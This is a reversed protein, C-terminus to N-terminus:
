PESHTKKALSGSPLATGELMLTVPASQPAACTASPSWILPDRGERNEGKEGVKCLIVSVSGTKFIKWTHRQFCLGRLQTSFTTSYPFKNFLDM